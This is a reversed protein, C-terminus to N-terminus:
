AQLVDQSCAKYKNADCKIVSSRYWLQDCCTYIYAPGCKINNHFLNIMAIFNGENKQVQLKDTETTLPASNQGNQFLTEAPPLTLSENTVQRTKRVKADSNIERIHIPNQAKRKRFSQKEIEWINEPNAERQKRKALRKMERVHDLNEAKRKKFSQKEIQPANEPNKARQKRKSQKNIEKVLEPDNM